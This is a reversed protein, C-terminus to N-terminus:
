PNKGTVGKGDIADVRYEIGLVRKDLNELKESNSAHNTENKGLNYEWAKIKEANATTMKILIRNQNLQALLFPSAIILATVLTKKIRKIERIAPGDPAVVSENFKDSISIELGAILAQTETLLKKAEDYDRDKNM